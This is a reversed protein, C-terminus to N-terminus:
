WVRTHSLWGFRFKSNTQSCNVEFICFAHNEMEMPSIAASARWWFSWWWWWRRSADDCVLSFLTYFPLLHQCTSPSVVILFADGYRHIIIIMHYPHHRHNSLSFQIVFSIYWKMKTLLKEKIKKAIKEYPLSHWPLPGAGLMWMFTYNYNRLVLRFLFLAGNM